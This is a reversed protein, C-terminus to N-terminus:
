LDQPMVTSRNNAKARGCARLLIREVERDLAGYTETSCRMANKKLFDKVTGRVLLQM